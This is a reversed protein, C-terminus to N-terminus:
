STQGCGPSWIVPVFGELYDDWADSLTGGQLVDAEEKENYTATDGPVDVAGDRFFIMDTPLEAYEALSTQGRSALKSRTITGHNSPM